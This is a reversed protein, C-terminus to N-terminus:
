KIEYTINVDSSITNEGKPLVAPASGASDASLTEMKAYMPVPYNGSENFSTIDGLRVGLDKALAKAKTQADDIAEKRAQAKLDDEKDISFNPGSLDTVGTTGLGQMIAGVGDINRVKVTISESATYGVIVPNNTPCSWQTCPAWAKTEYKPSFSANATKIDKDAVENTKLVELAKKEIESVMTQAEKVTKADKSITFYISAIDPVAQVEGHGTLTITRPDNGGLFDHRKNFGWFTMVLFHVSLVALFVMAVKYLNEKNKNLTEM